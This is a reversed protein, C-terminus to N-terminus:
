ILKKKYQETLEKREKYGIADGIKPTHHGKNILDSVGDCDDLDAYHNLNNKNWFWLASIIANAEEELIQPHDISDIQTDRHLQIHNNKGTVQFFGRGKYKWGDGSSENGNGMRNSYVRNAIAEPNHQYRLSNVKDFYKPFTKLLGEPGYNLNEKLRTFNQSEHAAQAMFHAKRLPTDVEFRKFQTKYKDYLEQGENKTFKSKM